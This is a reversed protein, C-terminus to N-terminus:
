KIKRLKTLAQLESDYVEKNGSGLMKEYERLMNMMDYMEKPEISVKHDSGVMEKNLTIHREIVQAGMAVAMLTAFYGEEHGSYGIKHQTGYASGLLPLLTKILNLNVENHPTPYTSTCVMLILELPLPDDLTDCDTTELAAKVEELTSMGISMILPKNKNRTYKILELDTLLPSAIKYFPPNFQEIFDVSEKDWCSAFWAIDKKKCYKDIEKYQNLSLELGNKLDRNTNGFISIRHTNLEEESYVVDVTRKQFKVADFGSSVAADILKKAIAISGNHNIGIEAVSYVTKLKEL